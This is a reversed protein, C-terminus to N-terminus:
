LLYRMKQKKKTKSQHKRNKFTAKQVLLMVIPTLIDCIRLLIEGFCVCVCVCVFCVTVNIFLGLLEMEDPTLLTLIIAQNEKKENM